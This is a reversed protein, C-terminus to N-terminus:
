CLGSSRVSIYIVQLMSRTIGDSGAELVAKVAGEISTETAAGEFAWKRPKSPQSISVADPIPKKEEQPGKCRVTVPFEFDVDDVTLM